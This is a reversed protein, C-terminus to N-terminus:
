PGVIRVGDRSQRAAAGAAQVDNALLQTRTHPYTVDAATRIRPSSRSPPPMTPDPLPIPVGVPSRVTEPTAAPQNSVHTIVERLLSNTEAQLQIQQVLLSPLVTLAYRSQRWLHFLSRM